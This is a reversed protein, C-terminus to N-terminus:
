RYLNKVAGWSTQALGEGVSVAADQFTATWFLLEVNCASDSLPSGPCLPSDPTGFFFTHTPRTSPYCIGCAQPGTPGAAPHDSPIKPLRPYFIDNAGYTYTLAVPGPPVGSWTQIVPTRTPAVLRRSDYTQGLCSGAIVERVALTGTYGWGNPAGTWFYAQTSVLQANPNGPDFAVGITDGLDYDSWLWLWGTCVNAYSITMSAGTDWENGDAGDARVEVKEFAGVTVALMSTGAMTLAITLLRRM